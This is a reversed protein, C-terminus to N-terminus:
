KVILSSQVIEHKLIVLSQRFVKRLQNITSKNPLKNKLALQYLQEFEETLGRLGTYRLGGLIKHVFESVLPKDKKNIATLLQRWSALLDALVDRAILLANGSRGLKKESFKFDWASIGKVSQWKKLLNILAKEDIPKQSADLWNGPSQCLQDAIQKVVSIAIAPVSTTILAGPLCSDCVVLDYNMKALKNNAIDGDEAVQVVWKLSKFMQALISLSIKSDDVILVIRSDNTLAADKLLADKTDHRDVQNTAKTVSQSISQVVTFLSQQSCPLYVITTQMKSLLTLLLYPPVEDRIQLRILATKPNHYLGLKLVRQYLKPYNKLHTLDASLPLRLVKKDPHWCGPVDISCCTGSNIHQHNDPPTSDGSYDLKTEAVSVIASANSVVTINAALVKAANHALVLGIGHGNRSPIPKANPDELYTKYKLPMGIGSDHISLRFGPTTSQLNVKISGQKTYNVANALLNRALVQLAQANVQIKKGAPIDSHYHLKLRKGAITATINQALDCILNDPDVWDIPDSFSLPHKLANETIELLNNVRNLLAQRIPLDQKDTFYNKILTNIDAIPSRLEHILLYQLELFQPDSQRESLPKSLQIQASTQNKTRSNNGINIKGKRSM